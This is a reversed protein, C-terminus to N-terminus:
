KTHLEGNRVLCHFPGHFADGGFHGFPYGGAPGVRYAGAVCVYHLRFVPDDIAYELLLGRHEGALPQVLGTKALGHRPDSGLPALSGRRIRGHLPSPPSSRGATRTGAQPHPPTGWDGKGWVFCLPAPTERGPAQPIPAWEVRCGFCLPAPTERSLAHPTGWY